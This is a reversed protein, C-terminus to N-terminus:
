QKDVDKWNMDSLFADKYDMYTGKNISTRIHKLFQMMFYINHVTALMPGLMEKARFLHALYARSYNSCTYCMCDDQPARFDRSQAANFVNIKGSHTYLVGTRAVRSPAVCDFTDIGNEVGTFIDGFEGIGLLHKPKDYPLVDCVTTLGAKLDDKSFSGGIGFGDFPMDGIVRASEGRLDEFRGGQVIGYLSQYSGATKEHQALSRRAWAHTREMAQRQYAYDASPSTCEDFAFMIDAGINHQIEMSREPTFRHRSGDIHSRFAVGDNDITVLKTQGNSQKRSQNGVTFKSDGSDFGVGLSFVQFGGSDTFTPGGWGMFTHLGGAQKVIDDGPQLYLHYTNALVAQVGMETLMQPTLGKVTAKTGVVTFAPTEITGHETEIRGTRGRGNPMQTQITFKM